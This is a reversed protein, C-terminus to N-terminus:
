SWLVALHTYAACAALFGQLLTKNGDQAQDAKPGKLLLNLEVLRPHVNRTLVEQEPSHMVGAKSVGHYSCSAETRTLVPTQRPHRLHM